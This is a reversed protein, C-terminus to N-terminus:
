VTVQNQVTVNNQSLLLQTGDETTVYTGIQAPGNDPETESETDSNSDSDNNPTANNNVVDVEEPTSPKQDLDTMKSHIHRINIFGIQLALRSLYVGM